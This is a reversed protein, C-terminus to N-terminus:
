YSVNGKLIIVDRIEKREIKLKKDYKLFISNVSFGLKDCFQQLNESDGVQVKSFQEHSIIPKLKINEDYEAVHVMNDLEGNTDSEANNYM